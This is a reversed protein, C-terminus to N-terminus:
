LNNLGLNTQYVNGVLNTNYYKQLEERCTSFCPHLHLLIGHEACYAYIPHFEEADLHMDNIMPAIGLANLGLKEHARRLEELAIVPDQMPIDAMGRFRDSHVACFDAVWDNSMRAIELCAEADIWYYYANPVISLVAMDIKMKDMDAIKAEYDYYERFVPYMSGAHDVIFKKGGREVVESNLRSGHKCIYEIVTDPLFHNHTDIKM